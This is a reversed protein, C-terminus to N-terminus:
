VRAPKQTRCSTPDPAGADCCVAVLLTTRLQHLTLICMKKRILFDRGLNIGYCEFKIWLFLSALGSDIM